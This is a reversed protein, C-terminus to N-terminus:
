TLLQGEDMETVENDPSNAMATQRDKLLKMRFLMESSSIILDLVSTSLIVYWATDNIDYQGNHGFGKFTETAYGSRGGMVSYGALWLITQLSLLIHFFCHAHWTMYIVNVKTRCCSCWDEIKTAIQELMCISRGRCTGILGLIWVPLFIIWTIGSCFLYWFGWQCPYSMCYNQYHEIYYEYEADTLNEDSLCNESVSENHVFHRDCDRIEFSSITLNYLNLGFFPFTIILFIKCITAKYAPDPSKEKKM